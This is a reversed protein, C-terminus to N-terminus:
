GRGGPKDKAIEVTQGDRLVQFTLTVVSEGPELGTLIEVLKGDTAGVTVTRVQTKNDKDVVVLTSREATETLSEKPVAVKAEVRQTTILVRGFMGPRLRHNANEVKIQVSFQRSLPDAAMNVHSVTGEVPDSLGDVNVKVSQGPKVLSAISVPLSSRFFLWDLSQVTVVAQGPSALSGQDATRQTVVGDIPSTLVLDNQASRALTVQAQAADVAAALAAINEKFAPNEAENARAVKLASRASVARAEAAKVDSQATREAMALQLRAVELQSDASAKSQQAAGLQAEAVAVNGKQVDVSTKADDVEQAAIFGQRYLDETRALKAEANKLNAKERQLVAQANAVQAAAGKSKSEADTVNAKASAVTAESNRRTRELEAEASATNAEEQEVRTSVAVSNPDQRLRAEALRSRAQALNAEAQLVQSAAEAPDIRVLIQGAKVSDGERVQIFEIRGSSRPALLVVNPSELSGVAEMLSEITAPAASVVEVAPTRRGRGGGEEEASANTKIRWGVLALVVIGIVLFVTWAKM